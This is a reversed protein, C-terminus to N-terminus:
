QCLLDTLLYSVFLYRQQSEYKNEQNNVLKEISKIFLEFQNENSNQTEIIKIKSNINEDTHQHLHEFLNNQRNFCIPCLVSCKLQLHEEKIHKILLDVIFGNQNCFPCTLSKSSYKTQKYGFYIQEFDNSTLILQMPHHISHTQFSLNIKKDYCISCLDFDNCVLCKYRRGSFNKKHCLDCSIGHNISM